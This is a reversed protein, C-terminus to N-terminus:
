HCLLGEHALLCGLIQKILKKLLNMLIQMADAASSLFVFEFSNTSVCWIVVLEVKKKFIQKPFIPVPKAKSIEINSSVM